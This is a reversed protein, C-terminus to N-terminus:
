QCGSDLYLRRAVISTTETRTPYAEVWGSFTDILVLLYKYESVPPKIETFDVEWHEGPSNGHTGFDAECFNLLRPSALHTAQHLQTVLTRGLAEPVLLRDDVMQDKSPKSRNQWNRRKNPTLPPRRLDLYLLTVLVQLPGMPKQAAEKATQNAARNGRAEITEGKQHGKCHVIAVARPLWIVELLALIEKKNKIDKGAATPLGRERQIASHGWRLAQILVLLEVKTRQEAYRIGDQVYSSGVTFLVKDPSSLPVDTLDPRATRVADTVGTCDHIPEEPNNDPLLSAPNIALTKHFRVCPQDLLLAQCQTIRTNSILLATTAVARLCAPWGAVVPDLRKSLYAVPRKWPGLTQILVGKTIGRVESVHLHFPKTVNSDLPKANEILGPIWLNYYGVAELFERETGTDKRPRCDKKIYAIQGTAGQVSTKKSTVPGMPETLVSYAAGTDVLFSVPKGGVQLTVRPEQPIARIQFDAGPVPCRAQHFGQSIGRRPPALQTTKPCGGSASEDVAQNGRAKPSDGKQHGKCHVLAVVKPLWIAELLALIVEKNKIDKGASTLDGNRTFLVTHMLQQLCM